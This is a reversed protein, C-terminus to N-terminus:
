EHLTVQGAKFSYGKYNLDCNEKSLFSFRNLKRGQLDALHMLPLLSPSNNGNICVKYSKGKELALKGRIGDESLGYSITSYHDRNIFESQLLLASSKTFALFSPLLLLGVILNTTLKGNCITLLKNLYISMQPVMPIIGIGIFRSYWPQWYVLISMEALIFCGSAFLLKQPNLYRGSTGSLFSFITAILTVIILILFGLGPWAIDEGFYGGFAFPYPQDSYRNISGLFRLNSANIEFPLPFQLSFETILKLPNLLTDTNLVRGNSLPTLHRSVEYIHDSNWNSAINLKHKVLLSLSIVVGWSILGLGILRSLSLQGEFTIKSLHKYSAQNKTRSREPILFLILLVPATLISYSKIGFALVLSTFAFIVCFFTHQLKLKQYAKLERLQVVSILSILSFLSAALDNKVTSAQFFLMPMSMYVIQTCTVISRQSAQELWKSHRDLRAHFVSYYSIWSVLLLAFINEMWCVLGLGQISNIGIDLTFVIDHFIDAFAHRSSSHSEIIASGSILMSASRSLNYVQADGNSARKVLAFFFTSGIYFYTLWHGYRLFINKRSDQRHIPALLRLMTQKELELEYRYEQNVIFLVMAVAGMFTAIVQPAYRAVPWAHIYAESLGITTFFGGVSALPLRPCLLKESIVRPILPFLILSTILILISATLIIRITDWARYGLIQKRPNSASPFIRHM